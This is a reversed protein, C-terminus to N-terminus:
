HYDALCLSTFRIGTNVRTIELQHELLTVRAHRAAWLQSCDNSSTDSFQCSVKGHVRENYCLWLCPKPHGRGRVQMAKSPRCCTSDSQWQSMTLGALSTQLDRLPGQAWLVFHEDKSAITNPISHNWLLRPCSNCVHWSINYFLLNVMTSNNFIM